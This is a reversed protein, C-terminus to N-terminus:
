LFFLILFVLIKINLFRFDLNTDPQISSLDVCQQLSQISVSASCHVELDNGREGLQCFANKGCGQRDRRWKRRDEGIECGKLRKERGGEPKSARARRGM